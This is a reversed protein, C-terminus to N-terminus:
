AFWVINGSADKIENWCFSLRWETGGRGIFAGAVHRMMEIDGMRCLIEGIERGRHHRNRSDYASSLSSEDKMLGVEKDIKLLEDVFPDLEPGLSYAKAM